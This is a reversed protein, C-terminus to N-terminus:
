VPFASHIQGGRRRFGIFASPFTTNQMASRPQHLDVCSLPPAIRPLIWRQLDAVRATGFMSKYERSFQSTSTYGVEYAVRSVNVSGAALLKRACPLAM